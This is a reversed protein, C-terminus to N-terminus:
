DYIESAYTEQGCSSGYAHEELPVGYYIHSYDGVGGFEIIGDIPEMYWNTMEDSPSSPAIETDVWNFDFDSLHPLGSDFSQCGESESGWEINDMSLDGGDMVINPDIEAELSRIVGNLREDDCEDALSEELFSLLLAGDIEPVEFKEFEDADVNICAPNESLSAAM